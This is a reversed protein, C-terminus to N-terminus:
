AAPLLSLCRSVLIDTLSFDKISSRSWLAYIQCALMVDEIEVGAIDHRYQSAEELAQRLLASSTGSPWGAGVPMWQWRGWNMLWYQGAPSRAVRRSLLSPLVLQRPLGSLRESIAGQQERLREVRERALQDTASLLCAQWDLEGFWREHLPANAREYRLQLDNSIVCTLLSTRLLTSCKRKEAESLWQMHEDWPWVLVQVDRNQHVALLPPVPWHPLAQELLTREHEGVTQRSSDYLKLLSVVSNDSVHTQVLSVYAAHGKEVLFCSARHIEGRLGLLATLETLGSFPPSLVQLYKRLSSAGLSTSLGSVRDPLFLLFVHAQEKWLVQLRLLSTFLQILMQRSAIVCVVIWMVAPAEVYPYTIVVWGLVFIFGLHWGYKFLSKARLLLRFAKCKWALVGLLLWVFLYVAVGFALAPYVWLLLSLVAVLVISSSLLRALIMFYKRAKIQYGNPLGVKAYKNLLKQAGWKGQKDIAWECLVYLIFAILIVAGIAMVPQNAFLWYWRATARGDIVTLLQWPLILSILLAALSCLTLLVILFLPVPVHRLM